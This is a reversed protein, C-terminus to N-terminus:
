TNGGLKRIAIRVAGAAVGTAGRTRYEQRLRGSIRAIRRAPPLHGSLHSLSQPLVAFAVTVQGSSVLGGALQAIPLVLASHTNDFEVVNGGLWRCDRYTMGAFDDATEWRIPHELRRGNAIVRAEIWDVRVIAPRGPLALTLDVTDHHEFTLRAFSLGNHNIRVRKNDAEHWEDDVTRYRLWTDFREGAPEFAARDVAGSALARAAAGLGTDSAALLAPWFSDRMSLDDLDGPSLYPLATSLDEPVIKTVVTSGFNDEHVWNGFVAAEDATPAKLASVAINALRAIAAPSDTLDAWAGDAHDVYRNWTSQFALVGEQAALREANQSPSESVRGLVPSGDADFGVLSGCLANVCQEIVEPSRVLTAAIDRPHGAQALYGECRLGALYARATRDDTALYLGSPTLDVGVIELVKALQYQITGGWGLDVLTLDPGKLAGADTLSKILRERAATVTVKLRNRLHPTETLALAVREAIGGNDIVTNLEAALSPVDGARLHLVSLLERVSLRYGRRIFEHVSDTDFDTLGALSTVHRSLWVPKATVDWGRARAANNVLASLLEGERMPCWLVKTGADHAKRAVWEAFGTLVPGLVAVGYRWATDQSAVKRPKASQLAKARLSTLGFDGQADDLNPAYAAFPEPTDDERELVETYWDDLRVYHVTRVGLESPTEHDAVLNDGVHVVQEPSRGLDRLVIEFLGNAKDLGHQHSRFVRVDRMSGLEPRDLLHALHEETFYTDSVLVVPVDHKHAMRILEAIDLDVVLFEREVDIEAKVFEELRSPDFVKAPMARWIDFLSVETGLADRGRRAKDEATIRMRRFTADTVWGPAMGAARLRAGLIGFVDAPRPVRRWLVTDFIDLSLVACSRDALMRHVDELLPHRGTDAVETM